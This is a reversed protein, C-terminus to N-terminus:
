VEAHKGRELTKGCESCKLCARHYDKGNSTYREAAILFLCSKNSFLYVYFFSIDSSSCCMFVPDADPYTKGTGSLPVPSLRYRHGPCAHAVVAQRFTCTLCESRVQDPYLSQLSIYSRPLLSREHHSPNDSRDKM